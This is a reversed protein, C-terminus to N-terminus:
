LAGLTINDRQYYQLHLYNHSWLFLFTGFRHKVIKIYFIQYRLVVNKANNIFNHIKRKDMIQNFLAVTRVVSSRTNIRFKHNAHNKNSIKVVETFLPETLFHLHMRCVAPKALKRKIVGYRVPTSQVLQASMSPSRYVKKFLDHVINNLLTYISSKDATFVKTNIARLYPCVSRYLAKLRNNNSHGKIIIQMFQVEYIIIFFIRM